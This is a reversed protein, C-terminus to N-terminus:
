IDQHYIHVTVGKASCYGMLTRAFGYRLEDATRVILTPTIISLLNALRELEFASHDVQARTWDLEFQKFPPRLGRMAQEVEFLTYTGTLILSAEGETSHEM